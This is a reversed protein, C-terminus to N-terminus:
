LESTEEKTTKSAESQQMEEPSLLKIHLQARYIDSDKVRIIDIVIMKNGHKWAYVHVRPSVTPGNPIYSWQPEQYDAVIYRKLNEIDKMIRKFPKSHSEIEVKNLINNHFQLWIFYTYSGIKTLNENIMIEGSRRLISCDKCLNLKLVEEMTMGFKIEGYAETALEQETKIKKSNCSFIAFILLTIFLYKYMSM